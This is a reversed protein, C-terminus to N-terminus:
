DYWNSVRSMKFYEEFEERSMYRELHKQILGQYNKTKNIEVLEDYPVVSTRNYKYVIPTGDPNTLVRKPKTVKPKQKKVPANEYQFETIKKTAMRALHRVDDVENAYEETLKSEAIATTKVVREIGPERSEAKIKLEMATPAAADTDKKKEASPPVKVNGASRHKALLAATHASSNVAPSSDARSITPVRLLASRGMVPTISISKMPTKMSPIKIGSSVSPTKELPDPTTKTVSNIALNPTGIMPTKKITPIKIGGTLTKKDSADSSSVSNEQAPTTPVVEPETSKVPSLSANFGNDCESNTSITGETEHDESAANAPSEEITANNSIISEDIKESDTVVEGCSLEVTSTKEPTQTKEPTTAKPSEATEPTASHSPLREVNAFPSPLKEPTAKPSQSNELTSKPNHVRDPTSKLAHTKDPSSGPVPVKEEEYDHEQTKRESDNAPYAIGELSSVKDVRLSPVIDDKGDPIVARHSPDRSSSDASWIDPKLVNTNGYDDDSDSTALLNVPQVFDEMAFKSLSSRRKIIGGMVPPSIRSHQISAPHVDDDKEDASSLSLQDLNSLSLASGTDDDKGPAEDMLDEDDSDPERQQRQTRRSAAAAAPIASDDKEEEEDSTSETPGEKEDEGYQVDERSEADLNGEDDQDKEEDDEEEEDDDEDDDTNWGNDDNNGETLVPHSNTQSVPVDDEEKEDEEEEDRPHPTIQVAHSDDLDHQPIILTSEVVSGDSTEDNQSVIPSAPGDEENM